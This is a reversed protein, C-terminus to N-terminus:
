GTALMRGLMNAVVHPPVRVMRIEPKDTAVAPPAPPPCCPSPVENVLGPLESVDGNDAAALAKDLLAAETELDGLDGRTSKIRRELMERRRVAQQVRARIENENEAGLDGRAEAVIQKVRNQDM